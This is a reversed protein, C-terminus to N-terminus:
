FDPCSISIDPRGCPAAGVNVIGHFHTPMVIYGDIQVIPFKSALKKWWSEIMLGADNVQVLNGVIAGFMYRREQTCITVFYWGEQSYDYGALRVSRWHHVNPDYQEPM